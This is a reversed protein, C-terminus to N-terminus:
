QRGGPRRGGRGQPNIGYEQLLENRAQRMEEESMEGARAGLADMKTRFMERDEESLQQFAGKGRGEGRAAKDIPKKRKKAPVAQKEEESMAQFREKMAMFDPREPQGTFEQPQDGLPEEAPTDEDPPEVVTASDAVVKKAPEPKTAPKDDSKEADDTGLSIDITFGALRLKRVGLGVGYAATLVAICVLVFLTSRGSQKMEIVKCKDQNGDAVEDAAQGLKFHAEM